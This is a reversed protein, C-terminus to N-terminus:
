GSDGIRPETGSSRVVYPGDADDTRRTGVTGNAKVGASEMEYTIGEGKREAYLRLCAAKFDLYYKEVVFFYGGNEEKGIGCDVPKLIVKDKNPPTGLVLLPGPNNKMALTCKGKVFFFHVLGSRFVDYVNVENERLEQYQSGMYSLFDNFRGGYGHGRFDRQKVCGMFETYAMLSVAAMLRASADGDEYADTIQKEVGGCLLPFVYDDFLEEHDM